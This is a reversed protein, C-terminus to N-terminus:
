AVAVCRWKSTAANWIFGVTLKVGLVTTTPLAVTSAEFSAGWTIARATGNDTIEIILFDGAVPTGTLSSTMSTIAQALGTISAIDMNDTNIAPTASQTVAVVRNTVRKNTVTQVADTTLVSKSVNGPAQITVGGAAAIRMRENAALTGNTHIIVDKNSQTGIALHGGNVYLYGDLAGTITFGADSYASSNIGMDIYNTTDTGTDATAIIDSSASAGNSQNQVNLQFTTNYLGSANLAPNTLTPPTTSAKAIYLTDTMTDGVKKVWIDGAGGSVLGLNTRATSASALDSLNNASLLAGVLNHELVAWSSGVSAETGGANNATALYVDGVDVSKGSAGGVKGAVSVIYADGVVAAPYNPNTSADTTGKFDLLGTVATDVYAKTAADQASSPDALNTIKFGGQSVDATPTAMQDLRSTRVQTDFGSIDGPVIALDSKYQATTRNTWSGAKRQIIDDNSPSLGGITTLDNDLPQTNALATTLASEAATARSIESSLSGSLTVIADEATNIATQLDVTNSAVDLIAVACPSAHTKTTASITLTNGSKGSVTVKEMNPDLGPDSPYLTSDWLTVIYGNTVAPFKSASALVISTVGTSSLNTNSTSIANDAVQKFATAM